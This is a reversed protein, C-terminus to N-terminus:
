VRTQSDEVIEGDGDVAEGAGGAPGVLGGGAMGFDM